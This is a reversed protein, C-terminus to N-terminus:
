VIFPGVGLVVMAYYLLQSIIVAVVNAILAAWGFVPIWKEAIKKLIKEAAEKGLKEVLRKKFKESTLFRKILIKIAEKLSLKALAKLLDEWVDAFEAGELIELIPVYFDILGFAGLVKFLVERAVAAWDTGARVAFAANVLATPVFGLRREALLLAELSPLPQPQVPVGTLPHGCWLGSGRALDVGLAHLAVGEDYLGVASEPLPTGAALMAEVKAVQELFKGTLVVLEDEGDVVLPLMGRAALAGGAAGVLADRIATGDPATPNLLVEGVAARLGTTSIPTHGVARLLPELTSVATRADEATRNGLVLSGVLRARDFAAREGRRNEVELELSTSTIPMRARLGEIAAPGSSWGPAEHYPTWPGLPQGGRTFVFSDPTTFTFDSQVTIAVSTGPPLPAEWSVDVRNGTATISRPPPGEVVKPHALSGGSGRYIVHLDDTNPQGSTFRHPGIIPM